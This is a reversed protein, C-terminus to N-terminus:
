CPYLTSEPFTTASPFWCANATFTNSEAWDWTEAIEQLLTLADYTAPEAMAAAAVEALFRYYEAWSRGAPGTRARITYWADDGQDVQLAVEEILLTDGDIDQGPLNVTLLQGPELGATWGSAAGGSDSSRCM